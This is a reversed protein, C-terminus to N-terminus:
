RRRKKKGGLMFLLGVGAALWLWNNGSQAVAATTTMTQVPSVATTKVQSVPDATTKTVVQLAKNPTVLAVPLVKDLQAALAAATADPVVVTLPTQTQGNGVARLWAALPTNGGATKVMTELAIQAGKTDAKKLVKIREAAGKAAAVLLQKSM